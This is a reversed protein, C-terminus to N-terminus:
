GRVIILISWRQHELRVLDHANADITDSLLRVLKEGLVDHRSFVLLLILVSKPAARLASALDLCRERARAVQQKMFGM